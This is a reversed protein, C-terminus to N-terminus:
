QFREVIVGRKALDNITGGDHGPVIVLRPEAARLGHLAALQRLVADRDEGVILGILRSKGKVLELNRMTWAVDGLFLLETGDVKRIYVMQSGPAHGPSKILVVGPGLALYRGYDLPKYKDFTGAGFKVPAMKTSGTQEKTLQVTTALLRTLDPHAALGGIHDPHEHTLFIRSAKSMANLVRTYAEGDYNKMSGLDKAQQVSMATDLIETHHDSYVFQYAVGWLISPAWSGGTITIADWAGFDVVHEYLIERPGEGPLSAALRGVEALDIEFKGELAPSELFLWDYAGAAIVAVAALALGIKRKRSM